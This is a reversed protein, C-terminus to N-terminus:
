ESINSNEEINDTPNTEEEPKGENSIENESPINPNEDIYTITVRAISNLYTGSNVSQNIVSGLKNNDFLSDGYTVKNYTVSIKLNYKSLSNAWTKANSLTKGVLNPMLCNSNSKNSTNTCDVIASNNDSENTTEEKITSEKAVTITLTKGSLDSLLYGAPYSQKLVTNATSMNSAEEIYSVKIGKNSAWSTVYSKNKGIFNPLTEIYSSSKYNGKGIVKEEYDENISFSFEKILDPEVLGLNLKMAKVIEKLSDEYYIYNYLNLGMSEEFIYQDYGSLYLKQIDIIDSNNSINKTAIDKFVNYLSLIQETSLNSDMSINIVDLVKYVTDLSNIEKVKSLLSKVVLQQNLGRQFDNITKRHRSLALAQEGNLTQVGTKLCIENSGFQRQSNQECFSIPVDVEVGGLADVMKVVGQFNIKVYYDISVDTFNEITDIMCSEGQWAAHTIKNKKNNKFCTIPVYTDRPISLLTASLTDPNFTLLMLSDGNFSTSQSIDEETSDIGMILMTFPEDMKKTAYNDTKPYEKDKSIIIKTDSEIHEFKEISTFMTTYSSPLMAIDIKEDYLDNLITTFDEYKIIENNDKLDNEELILLPIKYGDISSDDDLLGIKKKTVDKIENIGSDNLVVMSSSYTVYEKSITDITKYIRDTNYSIFFFGGGLLLMMIMLLISRKKKGKIIFSLGFAFNLLNIIILVITVVYRITNEIGSLRLINYILYFNTITYILLVINNIIYFKKNKKKAKKLIKM